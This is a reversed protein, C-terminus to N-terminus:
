GDMWGEIWWDGWEGMWAGLWGNMGEQIYGNIWRLPQTDTMQWANILSETAMTFTKVYYRLPVSSPASNFNPWQRDNLSQLGVHLQICDLGKFIAKAIPGGVSDWLPGLGPALTCLPRNYDWPIYHPLGVSQLLKTKGYLNRNTEKGKM